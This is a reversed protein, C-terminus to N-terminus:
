PAFIVTDGREVATPGTQTLTGTAFKGDVATLEISALPKKRVALVRNTAPDTLTSAVREVVLHDGIKLGADSGANVYVTDGDVDAVLADWGGKSTDTIIRDIAESLAARMAEGLPTSWLQTGGLTILKYGGNLGIGTSSLVKRVSFSDEVQGTRTSVLRLDLAL